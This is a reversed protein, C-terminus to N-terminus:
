RASGFRHQIITGKASNWPWGFLWVKLPVRNLARLLAAQDVDAWQLWEERWAEFFRAVRENKAFFFVGGQLQLPEYGLEELTWNREGEGVHWLLKDGQQSSPVIMLDWGDELIRFGVETDGFVRCDADLYCTLDFPSNSALSVKIERAMRSDKPFESHRHGRTIIRTAGAISQQCLRAQEYAKAGIGIIIHGRTM